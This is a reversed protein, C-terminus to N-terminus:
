IVVEFKTGDERTCYRIIEEYSIKMDAFVFKQIEQSYGIISGKRYYGEEKYEFIETRHEKWYEVIENFTMPRTKKNPKIRFDYDAWNFSPYLEDEWGRVTKIQIIKGENYAKMVEIMDEIAKM